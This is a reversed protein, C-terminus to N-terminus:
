PIRPSGTGDPWDSTLFAEVARRRFMYPRGRSIIGRVRGLRQWAAGADAAKSFGAAAAIESLSREGPTLEAMAM